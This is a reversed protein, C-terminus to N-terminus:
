KFLKLEEMMRSRRKVERLIEMTSVKRLKRNNDLFRFLTILWLVPWLLFLKSERPFNLRMQHHFERIFDSNKNGRLVVMRKNDSKGFEEARFVDQMFMDTPCREGCAMWEIKERDLGLYQVCTNTILDAFDKVGIECILKMYQEKESFEGKEEWFAVWDCLLKM